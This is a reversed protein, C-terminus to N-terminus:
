SDEDDPPRNVPEREDWDLFRDKDRTLEDLAQDFLYDMVCDYM